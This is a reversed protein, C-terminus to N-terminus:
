QLCRDDKAEIAVVGEALKMDLEAIANKHRDKEKQMEARRDRPREAHFNVYSDLAEVVDDLDSALARERVDSVLEEERWYPFLLHSKSKMVEKLRKRRMEHDQNRSQQAQEWALFLTFSGCEFDSDREVGASLLESLSFTKIGLENDNVLGLCLDSGDFETVYWNHKKPEHVFLIERVLIGESNKGYQSYIRPMKELSERSILEM